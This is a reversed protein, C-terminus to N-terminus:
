NTKNKKEKNRMTDWCVALCSPKARKRAEQYVSERWFAKLSSEVPYKTISWRSQTFSGKLGIEATLKCECPQFVWKVVLRANEIQRQEWKYGCVFLGFRHHRDCSDVWIWATWRDMTWLEDLSENASVTWKICASQARFGAFESRSDFLLYESRENTFSM